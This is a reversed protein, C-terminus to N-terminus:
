KFKDSCERRSARISYAHVTVHLSLVRLRGHAGDVFQSGLDAGERAVDIRGVMAPQHQDRLEVLARPPRVRGGLGARMPQVPLAPDRHARRPLLHPHRPREPTQRLDRRRHGRPLQAIGFDPLDRPHRRRLGLIVQQHDGLVARRGMHLPQHPREPAALLGLLQGALRPLLLPAAHHIPIVIIARQHQVAPQRGLNSGTNELRELNRHIFEGLGLANWGSRGNRRDHGLLRHSVGHTARIGQAQDGLTEQGMAGDIGRAAIPVLDHHM